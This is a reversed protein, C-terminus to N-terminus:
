LKADLSPNPLDDSFVKNLVLSQGDAFPGYIKRMQSLTKM